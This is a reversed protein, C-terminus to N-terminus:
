AVPLEEPQPAHFESPLVFVMNIDASTKENAKVQRPRWERRQPHWEVRQPCRVQEALDPRAKTLMELYRAEAKELNRLHQVRRKQCHHLGDPCWWPQHYKDEEEPEFDDRPPPEVQSGHHQFM